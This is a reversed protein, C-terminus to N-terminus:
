FWVQLLPSTWLQCFTCWPQIMMASVNSQWCLDKNDFSHSRWFDHVSLHSLQVVFFSLTSSHISEFQSAPSSELTGQDALLDFWNDRFSILGSYEKPSISFSWYKPWRIHLALKNSFVRNSLLISILLLLSLCLILHHYTMVSEISMFKLLSWSNTFSLSAQCPAIWQTALFQVHCRSLLFLWM